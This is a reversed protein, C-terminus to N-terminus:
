APATCRHFRFRRPDIRASDGCTPRNDARFYVNKHSSNKVASKQGGTEVFFCPFERWCPPHISFTDTM